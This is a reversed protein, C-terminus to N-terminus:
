WLCFEEVTLQLDLQSAAVSFGLCDTLNTYLKLNSSPFCLDSTSYMLTSSHSKFCRRQQVMQSTVQDFTKMVQWLNSNHKCMRLHSSYLYALGLWQWGVRWGWQSASPPVFPEKFRIWYGNWGFLCWGVHVTIGLLASITPEQPPPPHPPPMHCVWGVRM